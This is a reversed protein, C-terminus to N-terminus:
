EVEHKVRQKVASLDIAEQVLRRFDKGFRALTFHREYTMRAHEALQPILSPNEILRRM